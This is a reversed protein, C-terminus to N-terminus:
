KAEGEPAASVCGTLLHAAEYINGRGMTLILDGPKAERRLYEDIESFGPLLVSGPIKAALQESRVGWTNRERSGMIPTLIVRDALSLADAFDQMLTYTRSFTFPQFVAWIRDYGMDRAARLTAAVETPHHAYDDAVDAGNVTGLFEFRRGAGPYAALSAAIQGFPVGETLAVAAAALANLVNHKGPVRLRIEGLREGRHALVFRWGARAGPQPDLAAFDFSADWGFTVVETRLGAMTQATLPDSANYYVRTRAKEAFKRFSACLNEMTLFYDLHDDDINLIVASDPSLHLFTDVFECAEIPCLEGAGARGYGGIARLKGGIVAGPDRGAELLIQTLMATTTTKGHTGAVGISKKYLRSVYGLALSRELCPLGRERAALLEPNDDLLAATYIVLQADGLNEACQPGIKVCIGSKQEARVIDGLLVDSGRVDFGEARLIQVIPYMGSGGIGIFHVRKCSAFFADVEADTYLCPAVRGNM